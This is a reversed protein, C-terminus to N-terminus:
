LLKWPSSLSQLPLGSTCVCASPDTKFATRFSKLLKKFFCRYGYVAFLFSSGFLCCVRKPWNILFQLLVNKINYTATVSVDSDLQHLNM